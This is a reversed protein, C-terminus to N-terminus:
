ISRKVELTALMNELELMEEEQLELKSPALTINWMQDELFVVYRRIVRDVEVDMYDIYENIYFDAVAAKYGNFEIAKPEECVKFDTWGSDPQNCSEAIHELRHKLAEVPTYLEIYEDHAIYLYPLHRDISLITQFGGLIEANEYDSFKVLYLLDEKNEIEYFEVEKTISLYANEIRNIDECSAMSFCLLLYCLVRKM